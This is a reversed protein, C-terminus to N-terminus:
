HYRLIIGCKRMTTVVEEGNKGTWACCSKCGRRRLPLLLRILVRAAVTVIIVKNQLRM